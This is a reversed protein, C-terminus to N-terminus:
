ILSTRSIFTLVMIITFVVFLWKFPGFMNLAAIFSSTVSSEVYGTITANQDYYSVPPVASSDDFTTVFLNVGIFMPVIAVGIVCMVTLVTVMNGIGSGVADSVTSTATSYAAIIKENEIKQQLIHEKNKKKFYDISDDRWSKRSFALIFFLIICILIFIICVIDITQM